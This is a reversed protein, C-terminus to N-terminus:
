RVHFGGGPGGISFHFDGGFNLREEGVAPMGSQLRIIVGPDTVAVGPLAPEVSVVAVPEHRSAQWREGETVYRGHAAFVASIVWGAPNAVMSLLEAWDGVQDRSFALPERLSLYRLVLSEEKPRAGCVSFRRGPK